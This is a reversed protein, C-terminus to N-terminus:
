LFLQPLKPSSSFATSGFYEGTLELKGANRSRGFKWVHKLVQSFKMYSITDLIVTVYRGANKVFGSDALGDNCIECRFCDPHWNAQMAKIVRGIM